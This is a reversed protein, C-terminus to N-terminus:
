RKPEWRDGWRREIAQILRELGDPAFYDVWQVHRLSRPPESQNLRVPILIPGASQSSLRTAAEIEKAIFGHHVDTQSSFCLLIVDTARIARDVEQHWMQGPVLNQEDLWTQFGAAQLARYLPRVSDKDFHSYAIFLSPRRQGLNTRADREPSVSKAPAGETVLLVQRILHERVNREFQLAADYTWYLVGLKELARRFGLVKRFQSVEKLDTTYFPTTRFYFMVKPRGHKKFLDYAREFEEGTGSQARKTPSGFRRWMIGVLIDFEGIQTSIADQADEGVGPWAHTEWRIASLEVGFPNGFIRNLEGVVLSAIDREEGVDGPSAIFVRITKVSPSGTRPRGPETTDGPKWELHEILHRPIVTSLQHTPQVSPPLPATPREVM